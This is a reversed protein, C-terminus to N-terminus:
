DQRRKKVEKLSADYVTATHWGVAIANKQLTLADEYDNVGSGFFQPKGSLSTAVVTFNWTKESVVGERCCRAQPRPRLALMARADPQPELAEGLLHSRLSFLCANEPIMRQVSPLAIWKAFSALVFGIPFDLASTCGWFPNSQSVQPGYRV